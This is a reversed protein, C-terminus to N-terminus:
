GWRCVLDPLCLLVSANLCVAAAVTHHGVAIITFSWVIFCRIKCGEGSGNQMEWLTFTFHFFAYSVSAATSVILLILIILHLILVGLLILLMKWTSRSSCVLCCSTLGCSSVTWDWGFGQEAWCWSMEVSSPAMGGSRCWGCHKGWHSLIVKCEFSFFSPVIIEEQHRQFPWHQSLLWGTIFRFRDELQNWQM